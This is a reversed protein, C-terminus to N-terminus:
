MAKLSKTYLILAHFVAYVMKFFQMSMTLHTRSLKNTFLYYNFVVFLKFILYERFGLLKTILEYPVYLNAIIKGHIINILFM